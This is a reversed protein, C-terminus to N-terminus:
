PYSRQWLSLLVMLLCGKQRRKKVAAISKGTKQEPSETRDLEELNLEFERKVSKKKCSVSIFLSLSILLVIYGYRNTNEKSLFM